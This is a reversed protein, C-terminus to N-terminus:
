PEARALFAAIVAAAGADDEPLTATSARQALAAAEVTAAHIMDTGRAGFLAPTALLPLRERAPHRFAARYAIPYTAGSALLELLWAHLKSPGLPEVWRIGARTRNYWPWFLTQDRLFNWAMVLHSGDASPVLAPTYRALMEDRQADSYLGIGDLVLRRVLAPERLSLELAIKAGTHTGYLDIESLELAGLAQAVVAAYDGIEAAGWPPKDSGGNGLTDFAIVTREGALERMLGSLMAASGPSAHLLVLPVGAGDGLRRVLLQGSSTPAYDRTIADARAAPRPPAPAAALEGAHAQFFAAIRDAAEAAGAVGEVRPDFSEAPAFPDGERALILVPAETAALAAGADHRLAAALGAGYAPGARLVDMLGEHLTQADPMELDLRAARERRYWPFFLHQDRHRTWAAVLHTGDIAPEIAPMAHALLDARLTADFTPPGDLLLAAVREGHRHALELAVSAGAHTGYVGARRLGLADLAGAIADAYDGVEPPALAPPDSGGYGPLDIAIACCRPALHELLDVLELSSRPAGALLVVPPGEGARRYHLERDGVTVFHRRVASM